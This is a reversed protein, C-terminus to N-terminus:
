PSRLDAIIKLLMGNDFTSSMILVDAKMMKFSHILSIKESESAAKDLNKCLQLYSEEQNLKQFEQMAFKNNIELLRDMKSQLDM